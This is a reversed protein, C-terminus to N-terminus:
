VRKRPSKRQNNQDQNERANQVCLSPIGGVADKFLLRTTKRQPMKNAANHHRSRPENARWSLILFFMSTGNPSPSTGAAQFMSCVEGSEASQVTRLLVSVVCLM